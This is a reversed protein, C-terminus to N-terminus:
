IPSLVTLDGASIKEVVGSPLRLLLMGKDDIDEAIGAYTKEGVTVEVKSGPTSSLRRWEDLLPERGNKILIEYWRNMEELIEAVIFTRSPIRFDGEGKGEGVLPSPLEKPKGGTHFSGRKGGRGQHSPISPLTGLEERISTAINRIDQPFDKIEMNVNIGIGIVAFTIRDFDSKMETLIGGLKKDSVMLDNPWKIKVRLGSTKKIAIACAVAAMIVLLTADKPEIEPRLIISMYLNGKPPSVWTRGSRGKGKTQTDAIVVTGHPSGKGALGMAFTNTSDISELFVIETGIFGDKLDM